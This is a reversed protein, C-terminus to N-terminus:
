VISSYNCDIKALPGDGLKIPLLEPYKGLLRRARQPGQSPIGSKAAEQM